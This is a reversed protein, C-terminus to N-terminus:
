EKRNEFRSCFCDNDSEGILVMSDKQVTTICNAYKSSGLELRQVTTSNYQQVITSNYQQVTTVPRGRIAISIVIKM